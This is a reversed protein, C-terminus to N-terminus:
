RIEKNLMLGSPLSGSSGQLEATVFTMFVPKILCSQRVSNTWLQWDKPAMYISLTTLLGIDASMGIVCVYYILSLPLVEPRGNAAVMEPM